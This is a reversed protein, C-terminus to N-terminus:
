EKVLYEMPAYIRQPAGVASCLATCSCIAAMLLHITMLCSIYCKNNSSRRNKSPLWGHRHACQLCNQNIGDM